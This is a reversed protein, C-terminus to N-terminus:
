PECPLPGISVAGAFVPVMDIHNRLLVGIRASPGAGVEELASVVERSRSDLQGWSYWTADFEVADKTPDIKLVGDITPALEM